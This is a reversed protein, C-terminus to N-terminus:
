LESEKKLAEPLVGSITPATFFLVIDFTAFSCQKAHFAQM